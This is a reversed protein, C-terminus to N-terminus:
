KFVNVASWIGTGCGAAPLSCPCRDLPAHAHFGGVREITTPLYGFGLSILCTSDSRLRLQRFDEECLSGGGLLALHLLRRAL